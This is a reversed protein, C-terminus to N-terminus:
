GRAGKESPREPLSLVQFRPFDFAILDARILGRVAEILEDVPLGLLQAIRRYSWFSTGEPGSVLVLFFYLLIEDRRLRALLGRHLIDRDIWSFSQPLTRIRDPRIPRRLLAPTV